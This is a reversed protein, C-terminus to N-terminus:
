SSGENEVPRRVFANLVALATGVVTFVVATRLFEGARDGGILVWRLLFFIAILLFAPATRSIIFAHRRWGEELLPDFRDDGESNM